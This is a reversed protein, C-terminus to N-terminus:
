EPAADRAIQLARVFQSQLTMSSDMPVEDGDPTCLIVDVTGRGVHLQISYCHPLRRKAYDIVSRLTGPRNFIGALESAVAADVHGVVFGDRFVPCQSTGTAGCEVHWDPRPSQKREKPLTHWLGGEAEDEVFVWRQGCTPCTWVNGDHELGRSATINARCCATTEPAPKAKMAKRCRRCDVRKQDTTKLVTGAIGCATARGQEYHTARGPLNM